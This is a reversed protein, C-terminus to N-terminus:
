CPAYYSTMKRSVALMQLSFAFSWKFFTKRLKFRIETKFPLLYNHAIKLTLKATKTLNEHFAM